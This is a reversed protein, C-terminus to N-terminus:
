AFGLVVVSINDEGGNKYAAEVLKKCCLPIQASHKDTIEAIEKMDLYNSLGDSCLIWKDGPILDSTLIDAEAAPIAGISRFIVHKMKVPGLEHRLAGARLQENAFSHDITVLYLKDDRRLYARSDGMSAVVIENDQSRAWAILTCGMNNLEPLSQGKSHVALSIEKFATKFFEKLEKKGSIAEELTSKLLEIAMRSAEQGGLHGGMGDALLAFKGEPDIYINDENRSRVRGVHSIGFGSCNM